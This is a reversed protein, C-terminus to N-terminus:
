ASCVSNNFAMVAMVGLPLYLFILVLVLVSRLLIPAM